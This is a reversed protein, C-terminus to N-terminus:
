KGPISLPVSSGTPNSGQPPPQIKTSQAPPNFIIRLSTQASSASARGTKADFTSRTFYIVKTGTGKPDFDPDGTPVIINFDTGGSTTLDLDHDIFQGWGYVYSSMNRDNRNTTTQGCIVDSIQRASPRTTGSPSAIGDAYAAPSIRLLDSGSSGWLPQIFNNGTGDLPAPPLIQTGSFGLMEKPLLGTKASLGALTTTSDFFFVNDQIKTIATNRRIVDSLRNKKIAALQSGSFQREYWNIDGDRLREFQDTLIRRFTPGVSSGAVHDEALGGIWPDIMNVGGYLSMLSSQLNTDSTIQSLNTVGPLGYWKRITNYDGLGHDRGRQINLSALDFGGDGPAGFLFNRLSDVHQTDVEQANDTALYKLLPDIGLTKVPTPNFFAMALPLSDAVPFGENNLFDIDDNVLTHGIRYAATSFETAIGPNVMPKYGTYPTLPNSGLLAPLFEQYTIAQVEAIVLRRAQQYLQEDTLWSNSKALADAIQNHERMFLTQIAILEINENARVDGALFLQNDPFIGADNANPLGATNLPLLNNSSTRLRGGSFSRLANARTKDSGYVMSADLFSSIENVQQRPNATSASLVFTNTGPILNAPFSFDGLPGLRVPDGNITVKIQSSPYIPHNINGSVIVRSSDVKSGTSPMLHSITPIPISNSALPVSGPPRIIQDGMHQFPFPPAKALPREPPPPPPPAAPSTNGIATGLLLSALIKPLRSTNM